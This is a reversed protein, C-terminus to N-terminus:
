NYTYIFRNNNIGFEKSRYVLELAVVHRSEAMSTANMHVRSGHCVNTPLENNYGKYKERPTTSRVLAHYGKDEM